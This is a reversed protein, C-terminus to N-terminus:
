KNQEVNTDPRHNGKFTDIEKLRQLIKLSITGTRSSKITQNSIQWFM